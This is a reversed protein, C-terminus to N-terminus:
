SKRRISIVIPADTVTQSYNQDFNYATVSATAAGPNFSDGGYPGVPALDLQMAASGSACSTSGSGSVSRDDQNVTANIQISSIPAACSLQLNIVVHHVVFFGGEPDFKLQNYTTAQPAVTLSGAIPPPSAVLQFTGTEYPALQFVSGVEIYYGVGASVPFRTTNYPETYFDQCKVPELAGPTGTYVGIYPTLSADPVISADVSGAADPTYRYWVTSNQLSADMCNVPDSPSTTAEPLNVAASYPVAPVVAANQITDNPPPAAM